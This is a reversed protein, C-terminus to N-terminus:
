ASSSYLLYNELCFNKLNDRGSLNWLHFKSSKRSQWLMRYWYSKSSNIKSATTFDEFVAFNITRSIKRSYLIAINNLRKLLKWCHNTQRRVIHGGCTGIRRWKKLKTEKVVPSLLLWDILQTTCYTATHSGDNNWGGWGIWCKRESLTLYKM